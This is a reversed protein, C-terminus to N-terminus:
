RQSRPGSTAFSREGEAAHEHVDDGSAENSSSSLTSMSAPSPPVRSANDEYGVEFRDPLSRLREDVDQVDINSFQEKIAQNVNSMATAHNMGLNRFARYLAYAISTTLATWRAAPKKVPRLASTLIFM